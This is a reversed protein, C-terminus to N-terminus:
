VPSFGYKELIAKGEASMVFDIYAKALDSHDSESLVGIPYDAIVNLSDPIAVISVKDRYEAPVDSVYVFGADAEGLAVKSVVDNVSREESKVNGIVATKYAPGYATDNVTKNLIQQTYSGVPVDKSAIVLKVGPKAIDSLNQINAPNNKPVIVALKNKTFTVITSNNMMGKDKLVNIHSPAASAFVDVYAGQEIQTRLDQSGMFNYIVNAPQVAEFATKIEGFASTLSAAAFVTLDTKPVPTPTPTTGPAPTPSTCGSLLVALVLVTSIILIAVPINKRNIM